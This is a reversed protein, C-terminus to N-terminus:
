VLFSIAKALDIFSDFVLKLTKSDIEEAGPYNKRKELLGHEKYRVELVFEDPLEIQNKALDKSLAKEVLYEIKERALDPHINITSNGLGEKVALVEINENLRKAEQCIGRDGSLFVVPVQYYAALYSNLRFESLTEGNLSINELVSGNLTHALPNEGSRVPSHYGIFVVGDYSGDLGQMMSCYEGSWGRILRTNKPLERHDINRASDHADKILIESDGLKNIGKCASEVEKTMQYSAERHDPENLRTEMWDTVGTVGEIDASIFIKM